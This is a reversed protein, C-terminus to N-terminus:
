QQSFALVVDFLAARTQGGFGGISASVRVEPYDLSSQVVDSYGFSSLSLSALTQWTRGDDRSGELQLTLTGVINWVRAAMEVRNGAARVPSSTMATAFGGAASIYARDFIPFRVKVLKSTEV